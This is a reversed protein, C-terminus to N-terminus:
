RQISYGGAQADAFAQQLPIGRSAAYEQLEQSTIVKNPDPMGDPPTPMYPDMPARPNAQSQAAGLRGLNDNYNRGAAARDQEQQRFYNWGGRTDERGIGYMGRIRAEELQSQARVIAPNTYRETIKRLERDDEAGRAASVYPDFYSQAGARANQRAQDRAIDGEAQARGAMRGSGIDFNQANRMSEEALQANIRADRNQIVAGQRMQEWTPAIQRNNVEDATVQNIGYRQPEGGGYLAQLSPRTAVSGGSISTVPQVSQGRLQTSGKPSAGGAFGTRLEAPTKGTMQYNSQAVSDFWRDWSQDPLGGLAQMPLGRNSLQQRREAVTYLNGTEPNFGWLDSNDELGYANPAM